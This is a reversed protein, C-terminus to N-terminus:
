QEGYSDFHQPKLWSYKPDGEFVRIKKAIYHRPFHSCSEDNRSGSLCELHAPAGWPYVKARIRDLKNFDAQTVFERDNMKAIAPLFAEDGWLYVNLVISRGQPAADGAKADGAIVGKAKANM